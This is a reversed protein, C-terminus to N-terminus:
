DKLWAELQILADSAEQNGQEAAKQYWAEAQLDNKKVGFLGHEYIKGLITQAEADGQMAAKGFWKVAEAENKILGIGNKYAMALNFQANVNGQEAAKRYWAVAQVKDMGVGKGNAYLYGLIDQALADGQEAAKRFWLAAQAEDKAVGKGNEYAIGLDIQAKSDGQEAAKLYQAAKASDVPNVTAIIYAPNQSTNFDVAPKDKYVVFWTLGVIIGILLTIGIGIRGMEDFKRESNEFEFKRQWKLKRRKAAQEIEKHEFEMQFQWQTDASGHTRQEHKQRKREIRELAEKTSMEEYQFKIFLRKALKEDGHAEAIARTAIGHFNYNKEMEESAIRYIENVSILETDCSKLNRMIM